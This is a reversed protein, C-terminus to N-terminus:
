WLKLVTKKEFCQKADQYTKGFEKMFAGIQKRTTMSYLGTIEEVLGSGNVYIVPTKYSVMVMSGDDHTIVTAHAYPMNKLTRIM